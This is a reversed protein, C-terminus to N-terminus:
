HFVIKIKLYYHSRVISRGLWRSLSVPHAQGGEAPTPAIQM